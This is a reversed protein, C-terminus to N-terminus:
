DAQKTPLLFRQQMALRFQQLEIAERRFSVVDVFGLANTKAAIQNIRNGIASLERMADFFAHDPKECPEYGAVLHRLFTEKNLGTKQIKRNLSLAEQQTLRFKVQINRKRM